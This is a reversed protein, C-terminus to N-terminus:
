IEFAPTLFSTSGDTPELRLRLMGPALEPLEFRGTDGIEFTADDSWGTATDRQVVVAVPSPPVVWGDIRSSAGDGSVRLLLDIGEHAFRLTYATAAGGRTGALEETREVLLMLEIDLGVDYLDSAALAAATQLRAVMDDPVPDHSHWYARIGAFLTDDTLEPLDTM